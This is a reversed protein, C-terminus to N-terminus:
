CKGYEISIEINNINNNTEKINYYILAKLNNADLRTSDCYYYYLSNDKLELEGNYYTGDFSKIEKGESNYIHILYNDNLNNPETVILYKQNFIYFNNLKVFDGVKINGIKFYNISQDFNDFNYYLYLNYKQDNLKIYGLNKDCLGTDTECLANVSKIENKLVDGPLDKNEITLMDMVGYNTNHEKNYNFALYKGLAFGSILIISFVLVAIMVGIKNRM